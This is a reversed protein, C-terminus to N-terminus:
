LQSKTQWLVLDDFHMEEVSGNNFRSDYFVDDPVAAPTGGVRVVQANGFRCNVSDIMQDYLASPICNTATTGRKDGGFSLVLYAASAIQQCLTSCTAEIKGTRVRILGTTSTHAFAGSATGPKAMGPTVVYRFRNGYGDKMTSLPLNLDRIPVDGYRLTSSALTSGTCNGTGSDRQEKGYASSVNAVTQNAPCPLYGYVYRHKAMAVKITDLREQTVRYATRNMFVATSELGMVAVVSVIAIVVSLEILSFGKQSARQPRPRHM